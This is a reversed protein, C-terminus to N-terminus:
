CPTFMAVVDIPAVPTINGSEVVCVVAATVPPVPVGGLFLVIKELPVYVGVAPMFNTITEPEPAPPPPPPPM